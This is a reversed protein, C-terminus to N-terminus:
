GQPPLSSTPGPAAVETVGAHVKQGVRVLSRYGAPLTLDVRSGFRILGLRMGAQGTDDPGLYTVIRRALLGSVLRIVMEGEGTSCVVEVSANGGSRNGGAPRHGGPERIVSLVTGALPLRVVHVDLLTLYISISCSGKGDDVATIRGDAPSLARDPDSGPAPERRPDRFFFLLASLILIAGALAILRWPESGFSLNVLAALFLGLAPLVFIGGGRAIRV